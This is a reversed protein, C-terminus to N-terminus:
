KLKLSQAFISIRCCLGHVLQDYSQYCLMFIKLASSPWFLLCHYTWIKCCYLNQFGTKGYGLKSKYHLLAWWSVHLSGCKGFWESIKNMPKVFKIKFDLSVQHARRVREVEPDDLRVKPNTGLPLDETNAFTQFLCLENILLVRFIIMFEFSVSNKMRFRTTLPSMLVTKTLVLGGYGAFTKFLESDM